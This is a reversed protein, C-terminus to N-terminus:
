VDRYLPQTLCHPGGRARSLEHSPLLICTPKPVELDVHAKGSLVDEADVIAFGNEQLAEATRINRDYLTIVGPALAFTNAGDTWQERQQDLPDAGGCPIPELELGHERFAEKLNPFAKPYLDKDLLDLSQVPFELVPPFLLYRTSDIATFVTDLHMYARKQPLRVVLVHRPGHGERARPALAQAIQRVGTSNTRESYGIALIDKTLVLFDGGEFCPRRLGLLTPRGHSLDLPDFLVPVDKFEPHFHFITRSLLVERWRAPTAMDSFIVGDGVTFQPDRQFCWNPLPPVQFLENHDLDPHDPSTRLGGVLIETLDEAPIKETRSRVEPATNDFLIPHLWERAEQIELTEALLQKPDVWAIGLKDLVETFTSHERAAESGFLIDDFLLEEMMDPTMREVESGPQHVLVKRLRGIESNVQIM